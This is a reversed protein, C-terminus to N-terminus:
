GGLGFIEGIEDLGLVGDLERDVVRYTDGLAPFVVFSEGATLRAVPDLAVDVSFIAVVGAAGRDEALAKFQVEVHGRGDVRHM